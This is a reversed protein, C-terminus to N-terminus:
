GPSSITWTSPCATPPKDVCPTSWSTKPGAPVSTTTSIRRGLESVRMETVTWLDRGIPWAELPLVAAAAAAADGEEFPACCCAGSPPPPPARLQLQINPDGPLPDHPVACKVLVWCECSKLELLAIDTPCLVLLEPGGGSVALYWSCWPASLSSSASWNAIISDIHSSAAPACGLAVLVSVWGRADMLSSSRCANALMKCSSLPPLALRPPSAAASCRPMKTQGNPHPSRNTPEEIQACIAGCM